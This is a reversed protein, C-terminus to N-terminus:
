IAGQDGTGEVVSVPNPSPVIRRYGGRERDQVLSWGIRRLINAESPSYFPGIPKSPNRLAPDNKDVLTQTLVTVIPITMEAKRLANDMSQQFMYGIQGQSEAGCVDLPMAPLYSKGLEYLHLIDGVQPGNGHTISIHHGEKVLKALQESTERLRSLQEEATGKDKHKLIANGGVAVLIRLWIVRM